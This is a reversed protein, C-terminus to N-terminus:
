QKDGISKWEDSQELSSIIMRARRSEPKGKHQREISTLTNIISSKSKKKALNIYFSIPVEWFNKKDPIQLSAPSISKEKDKSSIYENIETYSKILEKLNSM